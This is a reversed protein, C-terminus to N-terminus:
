ACIYLLMVNICCVLKNKKKFPLAVCLNVLRYNETKSWINADKWGSWYCSSACSPVIWYFVPAQLCPTTSHIKQCKWQLIGVWGRIPHWDAAFHSVLMHCDALINIGTPLWKRDLIIYSSSAYKPLLFRAMEYKICQLHRIHVILWITFTSYIFWCHSPSPGKRQLVCVYM